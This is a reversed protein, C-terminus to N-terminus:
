PHKTFHACIQDFIRARIEPTEMLVEHQANPIIDLSSNPWREVRNKIAAVDVIRENGGLFTKLPLDPSELRAINRCEVLAGYLWQLSPGGLGLEPYKTLQTRMYAFMEADSTLMNDEFPADVVYPGRNTGPSLIHGLRTFRASTSLVWAVPRLTNSMAIGWMPATFAAAKVRLGGFVARLGISGGMSHGLLYYPEPLSAMRAVQVLVDVDKQYDLINRVYGMIPDKILRDALGQGRWDIAITAFGRDGFDGAAMGYKELFETRGPFLLVTGNVAKGKNPWIGVRLRVRDSANMWVAYADDPGLAVDNHFPAAAFM